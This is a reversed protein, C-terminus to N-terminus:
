MAEQIMVTDNHLWDSSAYGCFGRVFVAHHWRGMRLEPEGVLIVDADTIEISNAGLESYIGSYIRTTMAMGVHRRIMCRVLSGPTIKSPSPKKKTM